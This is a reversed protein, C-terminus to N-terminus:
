VLEAVCSPGLTFLMCLRARVVGQQVCYEFAQRLSDDMGKDYGWLLRNGWAWTGIGIPSLRLAGVAKTAGLSPQMLASAVGLFTSLAYASSVVRACSPM